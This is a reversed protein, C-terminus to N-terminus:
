GEWLDPIIHELGLNRLTEPLPKSTKEDWGMMRYYNDLMEDWQHALTKGKSPGDVPTSGYRPSPRDDDRTHGHRINFSRLLAMTRRGSRMAEAPTLNWGTAANVAETLLKLDTRTTFRCVGLSDEFQMSGKLNAETTSVQEASFSDLPSPVNFDAPRAVMPTAELTSSDSVSTDFQETTRVRHDHSRPTSGKMTHIAMNPVEGGIRRAARMVGEALIDGFGERYAIKRMMARVADVNGWAMELGGTDEQTLIGKEYCEMVMGLVWGMENTDMGLRDVENAMVITAAVDTQGIAPGFAAFQEYEPEEGVFGAYPGDPITLIHCHHMQCAWCPHPKPQFHGRIYEPGFKDLDEKSIDFINTTYNKVPIYSGTGRVIGSLTGWKYTGERAVPDSIINEHLQKAIASLREPDKLNLKSAGRELVVAKLRKSGMVAGSGNHPAAHGKDGFIGAFKVLNEGAPGICFVSLEREKKGLEEQILRGTEWTNKGLLHSADRLEAKNNHIYLYVWYKARGQLIIGDFGSFRLFAGFFGNAQTAVTGNTLCGKTVISFTGSGGIRTGGLPGSAMVMRNGEDSWETGPPVEEYLYKAGIGTGGIYKRAAEEDLKEETIQENTLDVRLIKGAYGHLESM